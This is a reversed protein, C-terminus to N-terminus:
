YARYVVDLVEYRAFSQGEGCCVYGAERKREVKRESHTRKRERGKRGESLVATNVWACEYTPDRMNAIIWTRANSDYM